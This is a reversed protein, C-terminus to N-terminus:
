GLYDVDEDEDEYGFLDNGKYNPHNENMNTIGRVWLISVILALLFSCGIGILYSM